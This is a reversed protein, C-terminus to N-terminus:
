KDNIFKQLEINIFTTTVYNDGKYIHPSERYNPTPIPDNYEEDELELTDPEAKEQSM